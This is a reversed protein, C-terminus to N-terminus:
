IYLINYYVTISIYSIHKIKGIGNPHAHLGQVQDGTGIAM